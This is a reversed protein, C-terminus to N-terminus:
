KHIVTVFINVYKLFHFNFKLKYRVGTASSHAPAISKKYSSSCINQVSLAISTMTNLDVINVDYCQSVGNKLEFKRIERVYQM